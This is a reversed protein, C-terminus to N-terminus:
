FQTLLDVGENKLMSILKIIPLGILTNPDNGHMSEFLTIGLGEAKVSGACDYPQDKELYAHIQEKSLTRFQVHYTECALQYSDKAMNYLCLGTYFTVYQGSATALQMYAEDPHNPKTITKGDLDACQDSGIVLGKQKPRVIAKAKELSLRSVYESASEDTKISEDITPTICELNPILPALLKRRYPSSSALIIKM